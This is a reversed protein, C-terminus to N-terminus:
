DRDLAEGCGHGAAPRTLVTFATLPQEIWETRATRAHDDCAYVETRIPGYALGDVPARGEILTTAPKACTGIHRTIKSM